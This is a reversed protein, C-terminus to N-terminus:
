PAREKALWAEIDARRWLPKKGVRFPAPVSGEDVKRRLTRPKIRLIACFEDQDLVPKVADVCPEHQDLHAFSDSSAEALAALDAARQALALAQQQLDRALPALDTM